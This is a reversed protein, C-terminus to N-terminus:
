AREHQPESQVHSELCGEFINDFAWNDTQGFPRTDYWKANLQYGLNFSTQEGALGFDVSPSIEIGFSDVKTPSLNINDDYFGRLSAAVSWPKDKQM